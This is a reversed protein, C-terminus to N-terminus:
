PQIRAGTLEESLTWLREAAEIDIAHPFVGGLHMMEGLELGVEAPNVIPSIDCDECYVGGKGALAPSTACWVQTAAGMPTDKLGREADIVPKGSADLTNLGELMSPELHRALNTELIGGPHVAFARVGDARGRRDLAVAFLVNATKSQGYAAFPTYGRQRFDVDDFAVPSFQHGLSALSIVRAGRAAKLAPWLRLTLQFHGLHNTAFQLEHGRADRTLEPLAM